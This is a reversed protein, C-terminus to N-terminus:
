GVVEPLPVGADVLLLTVLVQWHMLARARAEEAQEMAAQLEDFRRQWEPPMPVQHEDATTAHALFAARREDVTRGATWLAVTHERYGQRWETVKQPTPPLKRAPATPSAGVPEAHRPLAAATPSPRPPRTM